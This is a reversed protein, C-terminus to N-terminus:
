VRRVSLARPGTFLRPRAPFRARIATVGDDSQTAIGWGCEVIDVWVHSGKNPIKNPFWANGALVLGTPAPGPYWM